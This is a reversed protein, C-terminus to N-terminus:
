KCDISNDSKNSNICLNAAQPNVSTTTSPSTSRLEDEPSQVRKAGESLLKAASGEVQKILGNPFFSQAGAYNGTVDNGTAAVVAARNGQGYNLPILSHSPCANATKSTPSTVSGRRTTLDSEDISTEVSFLLLTLISVESSMCEGM